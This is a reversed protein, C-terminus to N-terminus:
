SSLKVEPTSIHCRSPPISYSTTALVTSSYSSDTAVILVPLAASIATTPHLQPADKMLHFCLIGSKDADSNRYRIPPRRSPMSIM